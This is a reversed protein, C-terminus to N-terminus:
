LPLAVIGSLIERTPSRTTKVSLCGALRAFPTLVSLCVTLDELEVVKPLDIKDLRDYYDGKEYKM